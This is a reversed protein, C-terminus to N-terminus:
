EIRIAPQRQSIIDAAKWGIMMCAANINGSILDPMVSADAIWLNEISRVRLDPRVVADEDIGMRCTGAPHYALGTHSRVYESLADPASHQGGPEVEEEIMDVIPTAAMIRRAAKIGSVLTEVDREDALLNPHILPPVKPDGSALSVRGRSAPHNKNVLIACSPYPLVVVRKGASSCYGIPLFHMQVDPANLQPTTKLFAQAEVISALPGQGTVLFKALFRAKQGLGETPNYTPAKARYILRVLPHESLNEGVAARDLVVEIGLKRLAEAKGIGSLLLIKPSNIAGACLTVHGARVEHVSGDCDYQVGIVRRNVILLKKVLAETLLRFNNRRLTKRLFADAASRRLGRYQNLQAYGVGEQQDSNYDPNAPYGASRAAAIFARTLPHANRVERVDLPGCRGRTDPGPSVRVGDTYREMSQFVPMIDEAAWGSNGLAAWRDYDARAGRVWNMGNISSTGGVVRGRPWPETLGGRTPDPQSQYGWDFRSLNMYSDAAVSKMAAIACPGAELLLVRNLGSASLRNALVCGASGAGVIVHDFQLMHEISATRSGTM